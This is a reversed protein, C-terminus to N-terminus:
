HVPVLLSYGPPADDPAPMQEAGPRVSGIRSRGVYESAPAHITRPAFFDIEDFTPPDVAATARGESELLPPPATGMQGDAVDVASSRRDASGACDHMLQLPLRVDVSSGGLSATQLGVELKLLYTRSILCTHFTPLFSKQRPLSLPVLIRAVHFKGGRYSTSAAPIPTPASLSFASDRRESASNPGAAPTALCPDDSDHCTWEVNAMCRSSLQLQECHLGQAMDHTASHKTPFVHRASTAFFTNVKMKSVLSGLRPPPASDSTGDFRLMITVMGTHPSADAGHISIAAPQAAEVVLTGLKGQLMGKRITREKRLVYDGDEGPTVDLPPREPAAPLVRVRRVRSALTPRVADGSTSDRKTRSIRAHIGYRISAMDPVMDDAPSAGPSDRDGRDGCTPPLQLHADQV